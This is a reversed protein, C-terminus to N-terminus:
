PQSIGCDFGFFSKQSDIPSFEGDLAIQADFPAPVDTYLMVKSMGSQAIAYNQHVEVIRAEHFDPPLPSDYPIHLFLCLLFLVLAGRLDCRYYFYLVILILSCLPFLDKLFLYIGLLAACLLLNDKLSKLSM